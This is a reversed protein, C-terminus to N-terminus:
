FLVCVFVSICELVICPMIAYEREAPYTTECLHRHAAKIKAAHQRTTHLTRIPYFEAAVAPVRM